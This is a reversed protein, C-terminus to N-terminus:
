GLSKVRRELRELDELLRATAARLEEFDARRALLRGEEAAYEALNEAIRRAGDAHWGAIERGTAFLRHAAADGILRSLREEGEELLIELAAILRADSEPM